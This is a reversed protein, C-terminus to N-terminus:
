KKLRNVLKELHAAYNSKDKSPPEKLPPLPHNRRYTIYPEYLNFCRHFTHQLFDNVIKDPVHNTNILYAIDNLTNLVLDIQHLDIEGVSVERVRQNIRQWGEVISANKPLDVFIEPHLYVFWRARRLEPNEIYRLVVLISELENARRIARLQLGYIIATAIVILAALGTTLGGIITAIKVWWDLDM